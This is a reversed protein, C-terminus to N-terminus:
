KRLKNHFLFDRVESFFSSDQWINYQAQSAVSYMVESFRLFYSCAVRSIFSCYWYIVYSYQTHKSPLIEM